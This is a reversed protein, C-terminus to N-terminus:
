RINDYEEEFDSKDCKIYADLQVESMKKISDIGLDDFYDSVYAFTYFNGINRNEKNLNKFSVDKIDTVYRDADVVKWNYKGHIDQLYVGAFFHGSTGVKKGSEINRGWNKNLTIIQMTPIGVSRAISTFLTCSDCCGTREGSKLIETANRKFKRSDNANHLRSTYKNMLVLIKRVKIGDTMDKLNEKIIKTIDISETRTGSKLYKNTNDWEPTRLLGDKIM